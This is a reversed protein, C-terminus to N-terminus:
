LHSLPKEMCLAREITSVAQFLVAEHMRKAVVQLGVPMGQAAAPSYDRLMQEERESRPSYVEHSLDVQDRNEVLSAAPLAIVPYQLLNWIATYGWYPIAGLPPATSPTVPALLVDMGAQNWHTNYRQRFADRAAKRGQMTPAVISMNEQCQNIIWETLPLLPENGAKCFAKIDAGADEFYNASIIQWAADHDLPEFPVLEVFPSNKLRDKVQDIIYRVPPFPSVVGDDALIGVRLPRGPALPQGLAPSLIEGPILSADDIWPKASCYVNCFLEIDRLSRAFPGLTGSISDCGPTPVLVGEGSIRGVTPYFGYVGNLAAPVRISGGIDGGIGLVTGHMAMLAGEGGTSGGATMGRNRPNVTAGYINNSTELHMLSQPQNTRAFVVAGLKKLSKIIYADETSVNNVLSVFGMNTRRGAISIQEKVSVPLGHLPGITKGTRALFQDCKRADDLAQPVLETLCNTCQHAITARKRFAMLLTESSVSGDALMKVLSTADYQETLELELDSLLGCSRPVGITNQPLSELTAEDLIATPELTQRLVELALKTREGLTSM